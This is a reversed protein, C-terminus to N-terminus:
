LAVLTNNIDWCLVGWQTKINCRLIGAFSVTMYPLSRHRSPHISMIVDGTAGAIEPIGQYHKERYREASSNELANRFM